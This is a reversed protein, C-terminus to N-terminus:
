QTVIVKKVTTGTSGIVQMYYLGNALKSVDLSQAENFDPTDIRAVERGNSDILTIANILATGRYAITIATSAPNPYLQITNDLTDNETVSLAEEQFVLTFRNDSTGQVATFTYNGEKLNTTTNLVNDILIVDSTELQAGVSNALSITYNEQQTIQTSFGLQIQHSSDFLERAQIALREGTELTSFLSITTALQRSDFGEDFGQSGESVFGVGTTSHIPYNELSLTLWLLNDLDADRLNDNNGTVRLSNSFTVNTGVAAQDALIGFGQGSAMFQGPANMPDPDNVAAIGMMVNRVSVDDMSFNSTNFGPLDVSPTTIHDWFYVENIAANNTILLDTDIASVYPNGLLNFNNETVGNYVVPVEIIGTNLSGTTYTHDYNIEATASPAQPFVIYGQGVGLDTVANDLYDGNDDIFNAADPFEATVDTNPSFNDPIIGFVRNAGSHVGTRTEMDMPSSLVIFDRGGLLPTTKDVNITGMNMVEADENVQVISATDEVDVTGNVTIDDIANVFTGSAITLTASTNVVLQCSTLDGQMATDYDGDIVAIDDSTPGTTNDWATGDWTVTIGPCVPVQELAVNFTTGNSDVWLQLIYTQGGTLNEILAPFTNSNSNCTGAIEANTNSDRVVYELSQVNTGTALLSVSTEGVPLMFEYFLDENTGVSDCSTDSLPSPTAFETDVLTENGASDGPAFVTLPIAGGIIDNPVLFEFNLSLFNGLDGNGCDSQVFLTYMTGIVFSGTATETTNATTGSAIAGMTGQPIGLEQIEWNYGVAGMAEDWSITLSGDGFDSVAINVVNPCTAPENVEYLGVVDDSAGVAFIRNTAADSVAIGTLGNTQDIVVVPNNGNDDFTATGIDFPTSLIYQAISDDGETGGIYMLTGDESFDISTPANQSVAADVDFPGTAADYVATSLDFPTGLLYQNVEDGTGGVVFLRDGSTSFAIGQPSSDESGVGLASVAGGVVLTTIDFPTSLTYQLVADGGSSGVVFVSTGDTSLALGTPTGQDTGFDGTTGVLTANTTDYPSLLSYQIISEFGSNDLIYMNLGDASFAIDNPSGTQATLPLPNGELTTLSAGAVDFPNNLDFIHIADFALSSNIVFLQSGDNSFAIGNPTTVGVPPEFTAVPTTNLTSIDYPVTLSFETVSDNSTGSMFLSLGDNAFLVDSISSDIANISVPTGVTPNASLDFPTDLTVPTIDNGSNGAIFLQLGDSSFTLGDAITEFGSVDLTPGATVTTIDFAVPLTFQYVTNTLDGSVFMRTGDDNFVIGTPIGDPLAFTATLAATGLDFPSSLDYQNVEDGNSGVIFLRMGDNSFTLGEPTSEEDEVGFPNTTPSQAFSVGNNIDQAHLSSISGICLFAFLSITSFFLKRPLILYM